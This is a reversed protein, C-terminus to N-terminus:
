DPIFLYTFTYTKRKDGSPNNSAALIIEMIRRNMEKFEEDSLHLKGLSLDMGDALPNIEEGVGRGELYREGASMLSSLYVMFAQRYDEKKMGRLDEASLSPLEALAYRREITGRIQTEGVVKLIGGEVLTNIQRYLTTPPIGPINKALERATMQRDTLATVIQLRIPHLLLEAKSTPM